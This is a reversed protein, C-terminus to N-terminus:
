RPMDDPIYFLDTGFVMNIKDEIFKKKLITDYLTLFREKHSQYEKELVQIFIKELTPHMAYIMMKDIERNFYPLSYGIIVLTTTGKLTEIIKDEIDSKEWAFSIDPRAIAKMFKDYLKIVSELFSISFETHGLYKTEAAHLYGCNGNLRIINKSRTFEEFVTEPITCFGEYSKELQTDYNWTIINVDKPLKPIGRPDRILISAFFNDYRKDTMELSQELLLYCSLASKLKHLDNLAENDNKIFLKKAYTDISAHKEAIDRLWLISEMFDKGNKGGFPFLQRYAEMDNSPQPRLNELLRKNFSSLRDKFNNVLPLANCSAGAGLLYTIKSM